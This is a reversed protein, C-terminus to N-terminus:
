GCCLKGPKQHLCNERSEMQAEAPQTVGLREAIEAQSMGLCPKGDVRDKGGSGFTTLEFRAPRVLFALLVPCNSPTDPQGKQKKPLLGTTPNQQIVSSVLWLRYSNCYKKDLPSDVYAKEGFSLQGSNPHTPNCDLM